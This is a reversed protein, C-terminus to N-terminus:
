KGFKSCALTLGLAFVYEMQDDFIDCSDREELAYESYKLM